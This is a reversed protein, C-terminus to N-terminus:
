ARASSARSPTVRMDDLRWPKRRLTLTEGRPEAAAQVEPRREDTGADADRAHAFVVALDVDRQLQADEVPVVEARLEAPRQERHGVREVRQHHQVVESRAVDDPVLGGADAVHLGAAAVDVRSEAEVRFRDGLARAKVAFPSFYSGVNVTLMTSRSPPTTASTSLVSYIRRERSGRRRLLGAQAPAPNARPMLYRSPWRSRCAAGRRRRCPRPGDRPPRRAPAADARVRRTRRAPSSGGGARRDEDLRRALAALREVVHQQESRRSEALRRQRVDDRVLEAHVQALRRSRHELTRAVERRQERVELRAVHQEDVLDVPQRRDDLLDEIRRELVELDVDHDALPRGRAAHLEVQRRERQDARRRAGAHQGIRQAVAEADDRAELEVRASSSFRM